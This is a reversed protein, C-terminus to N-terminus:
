ELILNIGHDEMIEEINTIHSVTSATIYINEINSDRLLEDLQYGDIGDFNCNRLYLNTISGTFMESSDPINFGSLDLNTIQAGGFMNYASTLSSTNLSSLDLTNFKSSQFMNSMDEVNSTDLMSLDLTSM